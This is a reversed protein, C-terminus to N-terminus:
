KSIEVLSVIRWSVETSEVTKKEIWPVDVKAVEVGLPLLITLFMSIVM